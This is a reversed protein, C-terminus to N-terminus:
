DVETGTYDILTLIDGVGVDYVTYTQDPRFEGIVAADALAFAAETATSLRRSPGDGAQVPKGNFLGPNVRLKMVPTQTAFAGAAADVSKIVGHALTQTMNLSLAWRNEGAPEIGTLTYTSPCVYGEGDLRIHRGIMRESPPIGGDVPEIIITDTEPRVEVVRAAM